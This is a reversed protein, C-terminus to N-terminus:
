VEQCGRGRTNTGSHTQTNDAGEEIHRWPVPPQADQRSPLHVHVHVHIQSSKVQSSKFTFLDLPEALGM